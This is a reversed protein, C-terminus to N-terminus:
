LFRGFISAFIQLVRYPMPSCRSRIFYMNTSPAEVRCGCYLSSRSGPSDMWAADTLRPLSLVSGLSENPGSVVKALLLLCLAIGEIEVILVGLLLNVEHALAKVKVIATHAQVILVQVYLRAQSLGQDLCHLRKYALLGWRRALTSCNFRFNVENRSDSRPTGEVVYYHGSWSILSAAPTTRGRDVM